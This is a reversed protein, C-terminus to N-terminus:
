MATNWLRGRNEMKRGQFEGKKIRDLGQVQHCHAGSTDKGITVAYARYLLWGDISGFSSDRALRGCRNRHLSWRIQQDSETPVFGLINDSRHYM